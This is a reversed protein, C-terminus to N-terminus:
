TPRANHLHWTWGVAFCTRLQVSHEYRIAPHPRLPGQTAWRRRPTAYMMQHTARASNRSIKGRTAREYDFSQHSFLVHCRFFGLRSGIRSCFEFENGLTADLTKDIVKVSSKANIRRKGRDKIPGDWIIAPPWVQRCHSIKPGRDHQCGSTVLSIRHCLMKLNLSHLWWQEIM